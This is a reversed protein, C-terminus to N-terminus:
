QGTPGELVTRDDGPLLILVRNGDDAGECRGQNRRGTIRGEPNMTVVFRWDGSCAQAHFAGGNIEIRGVDRYGRKVLRAKVDAVGRIPLEPPPASPDRAVERGEPCSRMARLPAAPVNDVSVRVERLMGGRCATGRWGQRGWKRLRVGTYGLQELSRMAADEPNRPLPLAKGESRVREECFGLEEVAKIRGSLLTLVTRWRVGDRCAEAEIKDIRRSLVEVDTWGSATFMPIPDFGNQETILGRAQAQTTGFALLAIITLFRFMTRSAVM